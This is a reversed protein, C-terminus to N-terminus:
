FTNLNHRIKKEFREAAKKVAAPTMDLQDALKRHMDVGKDGDDSISNLLLTLYIYRDRGAVDPTAIAQLFSYYCDTRLQPDYDRDSEIIEPLEGDSSVTVHSRRRQSQRFSEDIYNTLSTTIYKIPTTDNRCNRLRIEGSETPTILFDYFDILIEEVEKREKLRMRHRIVSRLDGGHRTIVIEYLADLDNDDLYRTMLETDSIMNM